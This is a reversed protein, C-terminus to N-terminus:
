AAPPSYACRDPKIDLLPTGDVCDLGRVLVCGPEVSVVTARSIAIPNPRVPSRIAFTGITRGNAKPSQLVLDRRALHMWYVVEIRQGAEIGTLAVQWPQDVDLRCVPGDPVGQRPCDDRTAFPTRVRGIFVVAADHRAPLQAEM